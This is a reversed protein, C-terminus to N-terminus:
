VTKRTKRKTATKKKPKEESETTETKKKFTRRVRGENTKCEKNSCRPDGKLPQTMMASCTTCLEGTPKDWFATVCDPYRSCSYFIKGYRSRREIIDGETCAPCKIGSPVFIPKTNKCAPYGTCAFFKGFRGTKIVLPKQCKECLEDTPIDEPKEVKVSATKEILNKKFPDYFDHLVPILEKTGEAIEDLTGEVAATFEYDTIQPFHAVLMDTVTFAIETPKLRREEREVYGRDIVTAITPAYTSPRGIGHEELIKVLSADSYRAPPETFHQV